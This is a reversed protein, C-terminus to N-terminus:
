KENMNYICHWNFPSGQENFDNWIGLQHLLEHQLLCLFSCSFSRTANVAWCLILVLDHSLSPSLFSSQIQCELSAERLFALQAPHGLCLSSCTVAFLSSLCSHLMLLPTSPSPFAALCSSGSYLPGKSCGYPSPHKSQILHPGNYSKLHLLSTIQSTNEFSCEPQKTSGLICPCSHFCAAWQSATATTWLFARGASHKRPLPSYSM